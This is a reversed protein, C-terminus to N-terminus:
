STVSGCFIKIRKVLNNKVKAEENNKALLKRLTDSSIDLLKAAETLSDVILDHNSVNLNIKNKECM